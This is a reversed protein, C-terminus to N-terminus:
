LTTTPRLLLAGHPPRTSVPPPVLNAMGPTAIPGGGDDGAPAGPCMSAGDDGSGGGDNAGGDSGSPRGGDHLAGADGTPPKPEIADPAADPQSDGSADSQSCGDLVALGFLAVIAVHFRGMRSRAHMHQAATAVRARPKPAAWPHRRNKCV